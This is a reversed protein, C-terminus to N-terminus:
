ETDITGTQIVQELQNSENYIFETQQDAQIQHTMLPLNADWTQDTIREQDTGEAETIETILGRDNYEYRTTNGAWDTKSKLLGSEYYSYEKNAGICNETAHGEIKTPRRLGEITEFHYTTQKGLPNTVTTTGDKNFVLEVKELGAHESLIGRGQEDYAWTAFRVEDPGTIGTLHNPFNEDEYHYTTINDTHDTRNLLRGENDFNFSHSIQNNLIAKNLHGNDDHKLQLTNGLHDSVVTTDEQVVKFDGFSGFEIQDGEAYYTLTTTDGQLTTNSMLRGQNDYLETDGQPTTVQWRPSTNTNLNILQYYLDAKFTWADNIKIVTLEKGDSRKLIATVTDTISFHYEYSHIWQGTNSNYSLALPLTNYITEAQFKNGTAINIPNGACLSTKGNNRESLSPSKYCQSNSEPGPSGKQGCPYTTIYNQYPPGHKGQFNHICFPKGYIPDIKYSGNVASCAMTSTPFHYAPKNWYYTSLVHFRDEKWSGDDEFAQLPLPTISAVVATTCLLTRLFSLDM